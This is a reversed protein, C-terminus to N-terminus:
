DSILSYLHAIFKFNQFPIGFCNPHNIFNIPVYLSGWRNLGLGFALIFGGKVIIRDTEKFFIHFCMQTIKFSGLTCALLLPFFEVVGNM